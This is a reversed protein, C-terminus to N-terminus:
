LIVDSIEGRNECLSDRLIEKRLILAGHMKTTRRLRTGGQSPAVGRVSLIQRSQRDVREREHCSGEIRFQYDRREKM